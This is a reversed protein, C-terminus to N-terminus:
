FKGLIDIVFVLTSNAPIAQNVKDGYGLAPPIVAVVQSGVTQGELAKSFGEITGTGVTIDLPTSGWSKEIMTHNADWLFLKYHAKIKDGKKVVEGAGKISTYEKFEKPAAQNSPFTIGPEGSSVHVAFPIGSVAPQNSGTAHPLFVNKLDVILVVSTKKSSGAAPNIPYIAAIRSGVRVGTLADCLSVQTDQGNALLTTIPNTGDFNTVLGTSTPFPKVTETDVAEIEFTALQNGTFTPGDGAKLLHMQPESPVLKPTFSVVPVGSSGTVKISQAAAGDKIPDCQHPLSDFMAIAAQEPSQQACGSVSLAFTAIALVSLIKKLNFAKM